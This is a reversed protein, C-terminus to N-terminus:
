IDRFDAPPFSFHALLLRKLVGEAMRPLNQQSRQRQQKQKIQGAADVREFRFLGSNQHTESFNHGVINLGAYMVM